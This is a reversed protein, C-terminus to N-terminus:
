RLNHTPRGTTFDHAGGPNTLLITHLHPNDNKAQHCGGGCWKENADAPHLAGTDERAIRDVMNRNHFLWASLFNGRLQLFLARIRNRTLM